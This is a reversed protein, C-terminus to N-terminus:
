KSQECLKQLELINRIKQQIFEKAGRTKKWVRHPNDREEIQRIKKPTKLENGIYLKDDTETPKRWRWAIENEKLETDIHGGLRYKRILNAFYEHMREENFSDGTDAVASRWIPKKTSPPSSHDLTEYTRQYKESDPSQYVCFVADNVDRTPTFPAFQKKSVNPARALWRKACCM